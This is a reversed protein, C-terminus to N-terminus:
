KETENKKRNDRFGLWWGIGGIIFYVGILILSLYGTIELNTMKEGNGCSLELNTHSIYWKDPMENRLYSIAECINLTM